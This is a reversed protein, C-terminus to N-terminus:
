TKNELLNITVELIESKKKFEVPNSNNKIPKLKSLYTNSFCKNPINIFIINM